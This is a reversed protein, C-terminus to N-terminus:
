LTQSLFLINNITVHDTRRDKLLDYTLGMYTNYATTSIVRWSALGEIDKWPPTVANQIGFRVRAEAGFRQLLPVGRSHAQTESSRSLLSSSVFVLM